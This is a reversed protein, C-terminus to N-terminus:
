KQLKPRGIGLQRVKRYLNTRQIGLARAADEMRWRHRQLVTAIYEREFNTRAERLGTAGPRTVSSREIPVQALVDELRVTGGPASSVLVDLVERLEHFNRRWPLASLLLLAERSFTPVAVRNSLASEAAFCGVLTPIDSPRHRLPPLDVRLPFRACLERRMRGERMEDEVSAASTAVVRMDLSVRGWRDADVQGDRLVRALRGQLHPPTESVHAFVLTGGAASAIACSGTIREFDHPQWVSANGFIDQELVAANRSACDVISFPGAARPGREHLTRAVGLADLGVEATILVPDNSRLARLVASRAHETAPALGILEPADLADIEASSQLSM